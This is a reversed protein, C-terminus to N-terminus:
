IYIYIYIYICQSYEDTFKSHVRQELKTQAIKACSLTKNNTYLIIINYNYILNYIIISFKIKSTLKSKDRNLTM